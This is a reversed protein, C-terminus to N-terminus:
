HGSTYWLHIWTSHGTRSCASSITTALVKVSLTMVM